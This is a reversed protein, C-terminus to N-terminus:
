PRPQWEKWRRTGSHDPQEMCGDPWKDLFVAWFLHFVLHCNLLFATNRAGCDSCKLGAATEPAEEKRKHKSSKLSELM